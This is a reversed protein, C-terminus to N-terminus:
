FDGSLFGLDVSVDAVVPIGLAAPIDAVAPVVVVVHFYFYLLSALLL